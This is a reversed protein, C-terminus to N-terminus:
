DEIKPLSSPPWHDLQTGLALGKSALVEKIENLSKKGLNPTRLLENEHKQVLDGIYHINESKLCNTSRATLELEDVSHLLIPNVPPAQLEAALKEIRESSLDTFVSFQGILIDAAERLAEDPTVTGNTKIELILKDLDTRQEVRTSQVQYTVQLIPSFSANLRLKGIAEVSSDEDPSELSVAHYGRGRQVKLIMNLAVEGTLHAIVHEPNMVEVNHGTDIDAATVVGPGTKNLQMEAEEVDPLRLAVGKLNLLINTVDEQVGELPMYDHLVDEIQVEVIASGQMSSLLVRRLANGLTYGFGRDLPELTIKAGHTGQREIHIRKPTLIEKTKLVM